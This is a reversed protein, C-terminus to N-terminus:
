HACRRHPTAILAHKPARSLATRWMEKRGKRCCSLMPRADFAGNFIVGRSTSPLMNETGYGVRLLSVTAEAHGRGMLEWTSFAVSESFRCGSCRLYYRRAFIIACTRVGGSLFITEKLPPNM